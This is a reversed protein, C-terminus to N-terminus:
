TANAMIYIAAFQVADHLYHSLMLPIVRGTYHYAIALILGSIGTSVV